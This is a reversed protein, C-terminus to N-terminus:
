GAYASPDFAGVTTQFPPMWDDVPLELMSGIATAHQSEVPLISAAPGAAETSEFV